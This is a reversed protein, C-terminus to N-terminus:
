PGKLGKRIGNEGRPVDKEMIKWMGQLVWHSCRIGEVM